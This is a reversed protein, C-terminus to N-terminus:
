RTKYIFAYLQRYWSPWGLRELASLQHALQSEETWWRRELKATASVTLASGNPLLEAFAVEQKVCIFEIRERLLSEYQIGRAALRAHVAEHVITLAISEISSDILFESSLICAHITPLFEAGPVERVLFREVDTRMRAYRRPDNQEILDLAVRLREVHQAFAVGLGTWDIVDFTDVRTKAFFLVGIRAAGASVPASIARVILRLISQARLM